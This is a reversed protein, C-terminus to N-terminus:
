GIALMGVADEAAGVPGDNAVNGPPAGNANVSLVSGTLRTRSLVLVGGVSGRCLRGRVREDVPVSASCAAHSVGISM